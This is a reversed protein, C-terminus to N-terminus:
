RYLAYRFGMESLREQSEATTWKADPTPDSVILAILSLLVFITGIIAISAEKM